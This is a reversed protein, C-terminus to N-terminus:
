SMLTFTSRRALDHTSIPKWGVKRCENTFDVEKRPRSNFHICGFEVSTPNSDVEKRPRSNFYVWCSCLILCLCDVEKRPRSNFYIGVAITLINRGDVEKRPRSNFHLDLPIDPQSCTSRRALDHTSIHCLIYLVRISYPRGGRSTTLQFVIIEATNVTVTTSRRTLQFVFDLAWKLVQGQDVEEHPRSNFYRVASSNCRM